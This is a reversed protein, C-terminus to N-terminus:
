IENRFIELVSDYFKNVSQWLRSLSPLYFSGKGIESFFFEQYRSICLCIILRIAENRQWQIESTLIFCLGYCIKMKIYYLLPLNKRYRKNMAVHNIRM